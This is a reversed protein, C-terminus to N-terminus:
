EDYRSTFKTKELYSCAIWDEVSGSHSYNGNGIGDGQKLKKQRLKVIVKSLM